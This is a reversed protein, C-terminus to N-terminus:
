GAERRSFVVSCWQQQQRRRWRQWQRQQTWLVASSSSVRRNEEDSEVTIRLLGKSCGSGVRKQAAEVSAIGQVGRWRSGCQVPERARQRRGEQKGTGPDTRRRDWPQLRTLGACTEASSSNQASSSVSLAKTKHSAAVVHASSPLLRLSTLLNSCCCSSLCHHHIISSPEAVNRQEARKGAQASSAM